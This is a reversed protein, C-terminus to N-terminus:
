IEKSLMQSLHQLQRHQYYLLFEAKMGKEELIFVLDQILLLYQKTEQKERTEDMTHIHLLSLSYM